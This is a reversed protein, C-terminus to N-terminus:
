TYFIDHHQMIKRLKERNKSLFQIIIKIQNIIRHKKIPSKINPTRTIPVKINM